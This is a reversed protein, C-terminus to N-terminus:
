NGYTGSITNTIYQMTDVILGSFSHVTITIIISWFVSCLLPHLTSKTEHRSSVFILCDSILRFTQGYSPRNDSM